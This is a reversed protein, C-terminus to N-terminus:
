SSGHAIGHAARMMHHLACSSCLAAVFADLLSGVKRKDTAALYVRQLAILALECIQRASHLQFPFTDTSGLGKSLFM